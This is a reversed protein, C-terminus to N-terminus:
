RYAAAAHDIMLASMSTDISCMQMEPQGIYDPQEDITELVACLRQANPHVVHIDPIRPIALTAAISTEDLLL